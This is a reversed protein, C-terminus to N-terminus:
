VFGTSPRKAMWSTTPASRLPLRSRSSAALSYQFAEAAIPRQPRQRDDSRDAPPRRDSRILAASASRHRTNLGLAVLQRGPEPHHRLGRTRMALARQAAASSGPKPPLGSTGVERLAVLDRRPRTGGVGGLRGRRSHAVGRMGNLRAILKRATSRQATVTAVPQVLASDAAGTASAIISPPM